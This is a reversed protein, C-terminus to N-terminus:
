DGAGTGWVKAPLRDLPDRIIVSSAFGAQELLPELHERFGYGVSGVIGVHTYGAHRLPQLHRQIFVSFADTLLQRIFPHTAYEVAVQTHRALFASGATNGYFAEIVGAPTTQPFLEEFRAALEAPMEGYLYATLIRRGIDSGGGEDALLYGLSPTLRTVTQGDFGAAASGTGLIGVATQRGEEHVAMCAGRLDSEVFIQAQPFVSKLWDAVIGKTRADLCGTGFFNVQRVTERPLDTFLTENNKFADGLERPSMVSPNIGPGSFRKAPYEAVWKCSTSGCDALLRM